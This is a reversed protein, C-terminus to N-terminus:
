DNHCEINIANGVRGAEKFALNNKANNTCDVSSIRM